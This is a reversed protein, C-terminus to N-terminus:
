LLEEAKATSKVQYLVTEKDYDTKHKEWSINELIEKIMEKAEDETRLVALDNRQEGADAYLWYAWKPATGTTPREALVPRIRFRTIADSNVAITGDDNIIYM